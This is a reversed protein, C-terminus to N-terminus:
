EEMIISLIDIDLQEAIDEMQKKIIEQRAIEGVGDSILASLWARNLKELDLEYTDQLTTIRQEKSPLRNKIQEIEQDSLLIMENTILHDQSGNAEFAWLSGDLKKYTKM